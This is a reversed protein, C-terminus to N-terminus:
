ESRNLHERIASTKKLLKKLFVASQAKDDSSLFFQAGNALLLIGDRNDKGTSVDLQQQHHEGFSVCVLNWVFFLGQDIQPKTSDHASNRVWHKRGVTFCSFRRRFFGGGRCCGAGASALGKTKPKLKKTQKTKLGFFFFTFVFRSLWVITRNPRKASGLCWWIPYSGRKGTRGNRAKRIGLICWVCEFRCQCASNVVLNTLAAVFDMLRFCTPCVSSSM